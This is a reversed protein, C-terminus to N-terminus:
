RISISVPELELWGAIENYDGVVATITINDGERLSDSNLVNMEYFAVNTLRFSLDSSADGNDGKLILVDWRTDYGEHHQLSGVWGNFTITRGRYASSFWAADGSSQNLLKNLESEPVSEAELSDEEDDLSGEEEDGGEYYKVEVGADFAFTDRTTFDSDGFFGGIRVESVTGSAGAASTATATVNIFGAEEFLSVVEEYGM